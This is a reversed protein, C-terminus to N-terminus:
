TYIVKTLTTNASPRTGLLCWLMQLCWTSVIKDTSCIMYNQRLLHECLKLLLLMHITFCLRDLKVPRDGTKRSSQQPLCCLSCWHKVNSTKQTALGGIIEAEESLPFGNAIYPYEVLSLM